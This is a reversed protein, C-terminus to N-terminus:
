RSVARQQNALAEIRAHSRKLAPHHPAWQERVAARVEAELFQPDDSQRLFLFGTRMELCWKANERLKPHLGVAVYLSGAKYVIDLGAMSFRGRTKKTKVKM